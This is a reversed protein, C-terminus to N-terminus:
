LIDHTMLCHLCISTSLSVFRVLQDRADISKNIEALYSVMDDGGGDSVLQEMEEMFIPWAFLPDEPCMHIICTAMRVCRRAFLPLARQQFDSLRVKDGSRTQSEHKLQHQSTVDEVIVKFLYRQSISPM